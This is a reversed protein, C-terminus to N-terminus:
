CPTEKERSVETGTDTVRLLEHIKQQSLSVWNAIRVAEGLVKASLGPELKEFAPTWTEVTSLFVNLERPRMTAFAEAFRMAQALATAIDSFVGASNSPEIGLAVQQAQRVQGVQAMATALERLAEARRYSRKIGRAVQRAQNFVDAAQQPQGAQAMAVAVRSLARARDTSVEIGLAVQQAQSFQGAQAMATALQSLVGARSKGSKIGLAVQQAQSFVDAAQQPQGAQALATALDRLAGAQDESRKIGLAVQQAQSFLGAQAMATALQSLVGAQNHNPEIGLAVQQAQSFVDAAQQPQGAQAMATALDRLAWGRHTSDKIALAVPEAEKLLNPNHAGKQWLGQYVTMLSVFRSKADPRLRAHSLAEAERGLWVLTKLAADTHPSVRQQVAQRATYLQSLTLLQDPELPDTFSSIALELDAVYASEGACAVLKAEMWDASETLLRYLEENRGAAKLHAALHEFFYGDNPGSSWSDECKAWYANLLRNHLALLDSVQKRVYNRQLNQLSLKGQENRQLLSRKVLRNIVAQTGHQDLGEPAWFTQLVAEPILTDEPFVAFDLYRARDEPELADVSVQISM